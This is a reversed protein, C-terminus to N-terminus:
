PNLVGNLDLGEISLVEEGRAGPGRRKSRVDSTSILRMDMDLRGEEAEQFLTGGHLVLKQLLDTSM